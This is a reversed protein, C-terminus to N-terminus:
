ETSTTVSNGLEEEGDKDWKNQKDIITSIEEGIRPDLQTLARKTRFDLAKGNADELNHDVICTNFEYLAVTANASEITAKQDDGKGEFSMKSILDRRRLFEDYSMRRLVVFGPEETGDGPCTELEFRETVTTDVVAKPM